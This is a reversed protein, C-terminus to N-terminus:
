RKALAYEADENVKNGNIIIFKCKLSHYIQREM